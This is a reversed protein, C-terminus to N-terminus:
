YIQQYGRPRSFMDCAPSTITLILGFTAIILPSYVLLKQSWEQKYLWDPIRFCKKLQHCTPKEKLICEKFIDKTESAMKRGVQDYPNKILSFRIKKLMLISSYRRDLKRYESDLYNVLEKKSQNIRDFNYDLKARLHSKAYQLLNEDNMFSKKEAVSDISGENKKSNQKVDKEVM